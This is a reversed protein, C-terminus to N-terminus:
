LYIQARIRDLADLRGLFNKRIRTEDKRVRDVGILTGTAAAVICVLLGGFGLWLVLRPAKRSAAAEPRALILKRL